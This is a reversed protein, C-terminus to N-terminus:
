VEEEEAPEALPSKKSQGPPEWVWEVTNPPNEEDFPWEQPPYDKVFGYPFREDFDGLMPLEGEQTAASRETDM